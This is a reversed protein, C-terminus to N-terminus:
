VYSVFSLVHKWVKPYVANNLGIERGDRPLNYIEITTGLIKHDRQRIGKSLFKPQNWVLLKWVKWGIIKIPLLRTRMLKDDM